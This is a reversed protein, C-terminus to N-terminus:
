CEYASCCECHICENEKLIKRGVVQYRNPACINECICYFNDFRICFIMFKTTFQMVKDENELISPQFNEKRPRLRKTSFDAVRKAM